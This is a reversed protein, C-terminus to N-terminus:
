SKRLKVTKDREMAREQRDAALQERVFDAKEKGELGM